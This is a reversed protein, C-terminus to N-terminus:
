EAYLSIIQLGVPGAGIYAYDGEAFIGMAEGPIIIDAVVKPASKDIIDIVQVGSEKPTGNDNRIIYTIFSYDGFVSVDSVDGKAFAGGVLVPNTKDTIDIIQLSNGSPLYAFDGEICFNQAWGSTMLSGKNQPNERDTIDLIVFSGGEFIYLYNGESYISNIGLQGRDIEKIEVINAKDTADIIKISSKVLSFINEEKEEWVTSVAYIYNDVVSIQEINGESEFAGIVVQNTKDTVDIIQLGIEAKNGSESWEEFPLYVYNEEVHFDTAWGATTSSSVVVPKAKDTIDIINLGQGGIYAYDGAVHVKGTYGPNYYSGVIDLSFQKLDEETTEESSIEEGDKINSTETQETEKEEELESIKAELEEIKATTDIPRCSVSIIVLALILLVVISLKKM